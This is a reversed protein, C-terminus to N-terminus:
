SVSEELARNVTKVGTKDGRGVGRYVFGAAQMQAMDFIGRGDIV